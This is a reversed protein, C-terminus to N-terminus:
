IIFVGFIFPHCLFFVVYEHIIRTSTDIAITNPSILVTNLNILILANKARATSELGTTLAILKSRGTIPNAISIVSKKLSYLIAGSKIFHTLIAKPYKIKSIIKPVITPSKENLSKM